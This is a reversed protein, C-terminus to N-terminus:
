RICINCTMEKRRSIGVGFNFYRPYCQVGHGELDDFSSLNDEYCEFVCEVKVIEDHTLLQGCLQVM